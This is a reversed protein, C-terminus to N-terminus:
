VIPPRLLSNLFGSSTSQQTSFYLCTSQSHFFQVRYSKNIYGTIFNLTLSTGPVKECCDKESCCSETEDDGCCSDDEKSCVSVEEQIPQTFYWYGLNNLGFSIGLLIIIVHIKVKVFTSIKLSILM